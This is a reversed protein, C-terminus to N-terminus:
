GREYMKKYEEPHNAYFSRREEATMKLFMEKSMPKDLGQTRDPRGTEQVLESRVDNKLSDRLGKLTAIVDSAKGEVLLDALKSATEEDYKGAILEAKYNARDNAKVLGALQDKLAQITQESEKSAELASNTQENLKRKLGAAESNAKSIASKLSEITPDGAEFDFNELIAVKQEATLESYGEIKSTDFKAM